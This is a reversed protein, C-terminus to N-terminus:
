DDLEGLDIVDGITLDKSKKGSTAGKEKYELVLKIELFNELKGALQLDPSLQGTELRSIVSEKENLRKALEDIKLGKGERAQKIIKPYSPDIYKSSDIEAPPKKKIEVPEPLVKGYKACEVCVNVTAGDIEARKSAESGCIECEAM